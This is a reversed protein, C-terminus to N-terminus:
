NDGKAAKRVRRLVSILKYLFFYGHFALLVKASWLHDAFWLDIFM